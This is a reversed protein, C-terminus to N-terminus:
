VNVAVKRDESAPTMARKADLSEHYSRETNINWLDHDGGMVNRAAYLGTLMSHDQNNYRHMGNRGVTQLNEFTELYDRVIRIRAQYADDYIPYAMPQRIVVGHEVESASALGLQELERTAQAILQEDSSNWIADGRTCFYEMGLSTKGPDPLMQASWNKFNQIRGVGVGPTHIYIWNDPFLQPRNVVLGVLLFDRHRLQKAAELVAAPPAPDLREILTPLPMSTIVHSVPHHELAGGSEIAVSTINGDGDHALRVADSNVSIEGGRDVVADRFREWMQGPGYRPYDFEKILSRADSNGLIAHLVAARLSLGKIRQAAWDASLKDCSIGWVKETYTKFFTNFLRRGFRNVVWQEFTKVDRQPFAKAHFYSLVIAASEFVGLKWLTRFPALPYDFFAGKFFIRSLRPVRLFQEGLMEQWLENVEENKSFFRHGGIDFRYGDRTETRSIGGVHDSMEVIRVPLRNRALEFAATLGAPGAGVILVPKDRTM